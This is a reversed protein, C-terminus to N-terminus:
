RRYRLTTANGAGDTATLVYGAPAAKLWFQTVGAAKLLRTYTRMGVTLVLTSPESVRFRLRRYSLAELTPPTTDITFQASRTFTAVDDAITIALTYAGDPASTGDALTGNWTLSQPGPALSTVPPAAVVSTGRVVQFVLSAPQRMLTFALTAGRGAFGSVLDDIVLPVAATAVKSSATAAILVTYRGNALGLPPTLAFTQPGASKQAAFLTSVPQSSPSVLTATVAAATALTYRITATEGPAVAAPSASTQQVAPVAVSGLDGSASRAGSAAIVWTYRDPPVSSEDWTWDV